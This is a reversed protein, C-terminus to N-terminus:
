VAEASEAVPQTKTTNQSEISPPPTPMLWKMAYWVLMGLAVGKLLDTFVVGLVTVFFPVFVFMGQAFMQKFVSIKALKYGTMLLVAALAALPIKNLLTPILAASLLLMIGHSIASVKTKAGANVNASSRVIVSTVPLGGLLGSVMNGTGQAVLERNTPTTRHQTDMKDTAEICLLTEISAVVAITFAQIYVEINTIQSFNPLKFFSFFSTLSDAVPVSVLHQPDVTLYPSTRLFIENMLVAALVAVLAGPIFSPVMKKVKPREWAILILLSVIAVLIAGASTNELREFPRL